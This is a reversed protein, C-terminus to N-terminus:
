AGIRCSIKRLRKHKMMNQFKFNTTKFKQTQLTALQYAYLTDLEHRKSIKKQENDLSTQLKIEQQVCIFICLLKHWLFFWHYPAMLGRFLLPLFKHKNTKTIGKILTRDITLIIFGMFFGLFISITFSFCCTCFFIGRSYSHCFGTSQVSMLLKIATVTLKLTLSYKKKQPPFGGYFNPSYAHHIVRGKPLHLIKEM